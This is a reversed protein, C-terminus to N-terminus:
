RLWRRLGELCEEATCGDPRTEPFAFGVANASCDEEYWGHSYGMRAQKATIGHERLKADLEAEREPSLHFGGHSPTGYFTVGPLFTKSYDSTGWPTSAM